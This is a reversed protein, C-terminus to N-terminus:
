SAARATEGTRGEDAGSPPEAPKAPQEPPQAKVMSLAKKAYESVITKELFAKIQENTLTDAEPILSELIAGRIILRKTREKSDQARQQKLLNKRRNHLQRIEEDLSSVKEDFTKAM